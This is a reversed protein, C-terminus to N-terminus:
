QAASAQAPGKVEVTVANSTSVTEGLRYSFRVRQRGAASIPLECSATLERDAELRVTADGNALHCRLEPRAKFGKGEDVYVTPEAPLSVPVRSLAKVTVKV